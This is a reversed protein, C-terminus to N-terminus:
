AGVLSRIEATRWVVLAVGVAILGGFGLVAVVTRQSRDGFGEAAVGAVVGAVFGGLHARWDIAGWAFALFTNILILTMAFRLNQAAMALHRRRYNYVVFAGFVGFIAGSAGVGVMTLPGFAYSTASAVFGTVFYILLFRAAGFDREIVTGFIWLAWANFLIHFLGAHLFMATFLRWYQDGIAIAPPYLAGLDVLSQYSAGQGFTRTGATALEVVFMGIIAALLVKTATIGRSAVRM